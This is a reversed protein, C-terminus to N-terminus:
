WYSDFYLRGCILVLTKSCGAYTSFYQRFCLCTYIRFFHQLLIWLLFTTSVKHPQTEEKTDVEKKEAVVSHHAPSLSTEKSMVQESTGEEDLSEDPRDLRDGALGSPRDMTDEEMANSGNLECKDHEEGVLIDKDLMSQCVDTDTTQNRIEPKGTDGVDNRIGPKGPDGEDNRIGPPSRRDGGENRIGPLSCRDSGDNRVASEQPAAVETQLEQTLVKPTEMHSRKNNDELLHKNVAEVNNNNNNTPTIINNNNTPTILPALSLPSSYETDM